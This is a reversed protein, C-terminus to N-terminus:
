AALTPAALPLTFCFAAGGLSGDEIWIRGGHAEIALKCFALGLGSGKHGRFAKNELQAYKDFVRTRAEPPVGAGSDEVCIRLYDGDPAASLAIRGGFPTYRLANDLLNVLVRQIKEGDAWM